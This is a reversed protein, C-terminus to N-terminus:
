ASVTTEAHGREEGQEEDGESDHQQREEEALGASPSELARKSGAAREEVRTRDAVPPPALHCLGHLDGEPAGAAVELSLARAARRFPL